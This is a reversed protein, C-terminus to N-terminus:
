QFSCRAPMRPRGMSSTGHSVPPSGAPPVSQPLRIISSPTTATMKLVEPTASCAQSGSCAAPMGVISKWAVASLM